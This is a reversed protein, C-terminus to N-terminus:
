PLEEKPHSSHSKVGEARLVRSTEQLLMWPNAVWGERGRNEQAVESTGM